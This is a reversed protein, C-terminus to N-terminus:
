ADDTEMMDERRGAGPQEASRRAVNLLTTMSVNGGSVVIATNGAGGVRGDLLAAVGVAGGGEVVLHHVELLYRMARAISAEPVLLSQDVMERCIRFTYRNEGGLGGALADALTPEEELSVVHGARLSEHMVPAREM